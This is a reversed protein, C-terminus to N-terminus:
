LRRPKRARTGGIKIPTRDEVRTVMGKIDVGEPGALAAAVAERGQGFMGKFAVTIRHQGQSMEKIATFMKISAQHAAEYSSRHSKKFDKNSGGTITPMVPIGKADSTYTLLVNNRTSMIHLTHSQDYKEVEQRRFIESGLGGRRAVDFSQRTSTSFSRASGLGVLPTKAKSGSFFPLTTTAAEVPAVVSSAADALAQRKKKLLNEM